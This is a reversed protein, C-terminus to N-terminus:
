GEGPRLPLRGRLRRREVPQRGVGLGLRGRHQRTRCVRTMKGSPWDWLRVKKGAATALLTGDRNWALREVWAAGGDLELTREGTELNWVRAKGDQGCTALTPSNPHCEVAATGFGHGTLEFRSKGTAAEFVSIPGALSAAILLGGDASYDLGIVHDGLAARWVPALSNAPKKPKGPIM